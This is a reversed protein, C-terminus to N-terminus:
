KWGSSREDANGDTDGVGRPGAPVVVVVSTNARFTVREDYGVLEREGDGDADFSVAGGDRVYRLTSGPPRGRSARVVFREYRGRVQVYWVNTTAYWYGPVPAVPMGAPLRGLSRKIRTVVARRAGEKAAESLVTHGVSRAVTAARVVAPRKPRSAESRLVEAVAVRIRAGLRARRERSLPHREAVEAVLATTVSGNTVALARAATSNWRSLAASVLRERERRSDGVDGRRLAIRLRKRVADVGREVSRRLARRRRALTADDSRPVGGAARLTSAATRLPARKPGLLGRVVANSVDGYPLTFLNVNRAALPHTRGAGRLGLRERSVAATPLYTPTGDVVLRLDGAPGRLPRCDPRTANRRADLAEGLTTLSAGQEALADDVASRTGRRREARRELEVLVRDLYAARAAVRAKSPVGPYIVPAGLLEDRRERVREALEAPPNVRFTGVAGREVAVSLNRVRRHLAALDGRVWSRLGDPRVGDVRVPRQDLAGAVARRALEDPGGRETVVREVARDPVGALNPGGLAGAGRRHVTEIGRRPAGPAPAHRGLVAVTVRHTTRRITRTTRTRGARRWTRVVTKTRVVRRGYTALVHWRGADVGGTPADSVRTEVQVEEDTVEWGPGPDGDGSREADVRRTRAAVRVRAGYVSSLVRSLNREVALLAADASRGVRVTMTENPRHPSAEVGRTAFEARVREAAVPHVGAGVALDTAAVRRGAARVARRAASSPCGVTARQTALLGRNATLTVHRNAVVNAIPAGGYQAYGRAWAVAYLQATMRRALGPRTPGRSAADEFRGVRDHVALAPSAVAVSPRLRVREVVRGDRRAVVTLNRVAVGLATGNPGARSVAVSALTGRASEAEFAVTATVDGATVQMEDLRRRLGAGIRLRLADRFPRDLARGATTNAAVTVPARMAARGARRAAGRLAAVAAARAREVARETPPDGAPAPRTGLTAAFTASGVLLVVAVLAFPVRARDNM